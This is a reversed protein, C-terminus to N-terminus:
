LFEYKSNDNVIEWSQGANDTYTEEEMGTNIIGFPAVNQEIMDIQNNYMEHRSNINTLAKFFPDSFLWSFLVLTMVLDDHYGDDAAFSGKSQIFTSIESIIEADTIILKKEEVLSKFTSCGIRKIKKDTKSLPTFDAVAASLIGADCSPYVRVCADRM